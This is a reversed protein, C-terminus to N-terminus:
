QKNKLTLSAYTTSQKLTLLSDAHHVASSSRLYYINVLIM